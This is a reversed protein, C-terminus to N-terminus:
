TPERAGTNLSHVMGTKGGRGGEAQIHSVNRFCTTDLHVSTLSYRRVAEKHLKFFFDIRKQKLKSPM